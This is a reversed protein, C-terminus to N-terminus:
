ELIALIESDRFMYYKEGSIEVTTGSYLPLLVKQGPKVLTEYHKGDPGYAGPGTSIVEGASTGEDKKETLIIGGASKTPLELKRVLIRNLLPLVRKVSAMIVVHPREM